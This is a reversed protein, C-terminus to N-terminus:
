KLRPNIEIEGKKRAVSKLEGSLMVAVAAGVAAQYVYSYAIGGATMSIFIAPAEYVAVAAFAYLFYIYKGKLARAMFSGLLTFFCVCSIGYLVFGIIQVADIGLVFDHLASYALATDEGAELAKAYLGDYEGGNIALVMTIATLPINFSYIWATTGGFAAGACMKKLRPSDKLFVRLFFYFGAFEALCYALIYLTGFLATSLGATKLMEYIGSQLMTVSLCMAVGLIFAGVGAKGRRHLIAVMVFPALVCAAIAMYLLYHIVQSVM